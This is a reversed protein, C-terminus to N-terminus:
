AAISDGGAHTRMREVAQSLIRSIQMQSVGVRQAIERQLLGDEFRWRVIEREREGLGALAHETVDRNEVAAYGSDIVARGDGLTQGDGAPQDLSLSRYCRGAWQAERVADVTVDLVDAVDEPTPETGTVAAVGLKVHRVKANLEQLSRPVHVSWTRDRFHRRIEGQVNPVAYSVFRNGTSPDFREIAKVLGLMGAQLVDDFPEGSNSYRRAISKVLPACREALQERAQLDGGDHYRRLLDNDIRERRSTEHLM